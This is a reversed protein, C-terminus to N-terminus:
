RFSANIVSISPMKDDNYSFVFNVKYERPEETVLVSIDLKEMTKKESKEVTMGKDKFEKIVKKQLKYNKIKKSIIQNKMKEFCTVNGNYYNIKTEDIHM